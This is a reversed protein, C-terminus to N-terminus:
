IRVQWVHRQCRCTRSHLGVTKNMKVLHLPPDSKASVDVFDHLVERVWFGELLDKAHPQCLSGGCDVEHVFHWTFCHVEQVLRHGLMAHVLAWHSMCSCRATHAHGQQGQACLSCEMIVVHLANYASTNPLPCHISHKAQARRCCLSSAPHLICPHHQHRAPTTRCLRAAIGHCRM